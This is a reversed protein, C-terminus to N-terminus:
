FKRGRLVDVDSMFLVMAYNYIAAPLRLDSRLLGAVMGFVFFLVIPDM